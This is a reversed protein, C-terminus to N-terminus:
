RPHRPETQSTYQTAKAAEYYDEIESSSPAPAEETIQEQIQNSLMQLKM